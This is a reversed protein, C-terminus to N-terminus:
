DRTAVTLTPAMSMAVQHQALGIVNTQRKANFTTKATTTKIPAVFAPLHQNLKMQDITSPKPKKGFGSLECCM